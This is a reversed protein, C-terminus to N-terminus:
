PEHPPDGSSAETSTSSPAAPSGPPATSSEPPATPATPSEPSTTPTEPPATPSEPSATSSEPPATTEPPTTPATVGLKWQAYFTTNGTIRLQKGPALLQEGEGPNQKLSWGAFEYGERELSGPEMIKPYSNPVYRHKDVPVSGATAGNANYTVSYSVFDKNKYPGEPDTPDWGAYVSSNYVPPLPVPTKLEHGKSSDHVYVPMDQYANEWIYKADRLSLRVCGHSLAKKGLERYAYTKMRAKDLWDSGTLEYPISHFFYEGYFQTPYRVFCSWWKLYVPSRRGIKFYSLGKDKPKPTPTGAEGTSCFFAVVQEPDGDEPTHYLAVIQRDLFVAIHSYYRPPVVPLTNDDFTISVPTTTPPSTPSTTPRSETETIMPENTHLMISRLTTTVESDLVTMPNEVHVKPLPSRWASVLTFLLTLAVLLVAVATLVVMLKEEAFWRRM